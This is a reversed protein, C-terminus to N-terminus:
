LAKLNDSHIAKKLEEFYNKALLEDVGEIKLSLSKALLTHLDRHVKSAIADDKIHRHLNDEIKKIGRSVLSYDIVNVKRRRESKAVKESDESARVQRQGLYRELNYMQNFVLWTYFKKSEKFKAIQEETLPLPPGPSLQGSDNGRLEKLVLFAWVATEPSAWSCNGVTQKELNCIEELDKEFPDQQLKFGLTSPLEEFFLEKYFERDMDKSESIKDLVENTLAKPEFQYVEINRRSAAGRNCLIFYNGWVLVEVTHGVFGTNLLVPLGKQLREQVTLNSANMGTELLQLLEKIEEPSFLEPHYDTIAQIANSMKKLWYPPNAGLINIPSPAFSEGITQLLSIGAQHTSHAVSLIKLIEKQRVLEIPSLANKLMKSIELHGRLAATVFATQGGSDQINLDAEKNILLEVIDNLGLSVAEILVSRGKYDRENINAGHDILLELIDKRGNIVAEKLASGGYQNRKDIIAGRDLLLEAIGKRDRSSAAILPTDGDKNREEINVGRDILLEVFDKRNEIVALMFPSSGWHNRKNINAGRDILLEAIDKQDKLIALMLASDGDENGEDINAGRDILLEVIDRHGGSAALMLASFGGDNKENIKLEKHDTLFQVIDKQGNYAAKMLPTWGREDPVNLDGLSTKEPNKVVGDVVAIMESLATDLYTLEKEQCKSLDKRLKELMVKTTKSHDISDLSMWHLFSQLAPTQASTDKKLITEDFIKALRRFSDQDRKCGATHIFKDALNDFNNVLEDQSKSNLWQQMCHEFNMLNEM